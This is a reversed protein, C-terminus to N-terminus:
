RLSDELKKSKEGTLCADKGKPDDDKPFPLKKRPIKFEPMMKSAGMPDRKEVADQSSNSVPNINTISKEGM